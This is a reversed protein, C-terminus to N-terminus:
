GNYVSGEAGSPGNENWARHVQSRGQMQTRFVAKKARVCMSRDRKPNHFLRPLKALGWEKNEIGARADAEDILAM